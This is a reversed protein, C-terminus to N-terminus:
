EAAGAAARGPTDVGGLGIEEELGGSDSNGDNDLGSGGGEGQARDSEPSEGM